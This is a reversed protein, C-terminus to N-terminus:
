IASSRNSIRSGNSGLDNRKEGRIHPRGKVEMTGTLREKMKITGPPYTLIMGEPGAIKEEETMTELPVSTNNNRGHPAIAAEM